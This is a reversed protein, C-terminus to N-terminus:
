LLGIRSLLSTFGSNSRLTDFLPEVKLAALWDFRDEYAKELWQIAPETEGVGAYVIAIWYPSVYRREAIDKLSALVKIAQTRDGSAGYAHGLSALSESDEGLLDLAKQFEEIANSYMQKQEFARGLWQHAVAFGPNLMISRGLQEIAEDYRRAFYHVTGINTNIIHSLPDLEYASRIQALAEDFRGTQGLTFGYWHHATEYKPNLEMARKFESESGVWDWDYYALTLGLSAHAEALTDDLELARTAAAKAKPMVERAPMIGYREILNFSDALGAFALAYNPDLDIAENFHEIARKFGEETRKGLFYRGKLYNQYAESKDTHRKALKKREERTLKIRLKHSIENSIAEQIEFIDTFERNYHEGWLQSNNAVDILEASIVLRDGFEQVRGTLVARAGIEKAIEQLDASAGKYRFVTSRPIVRLKPLESLSNIINETIGDSLYDMGPDLSLNVLPLVALSDIAKRSRRSPAKGQQGHALSGRKGRRKLRPTQVSPDDTQADISVGGEIAAELRLKRRLNRLDGLLGKVTQYREEPDKRLTKTIIWQLETPLGISYRALPQPERTLIRSITESASRSMFPHRGSVMEYLTVGLSFLDSRADPDDGRLQEPSMYPLTGPVQGAETIVTEAETDAAANAASSLTKALGFDLVKVQDRSNVIINQPKVDRHIISRSHAEALADAVQTAIELAEEIELSKRSMRAALTEGEVYQMVIFPRGEEEGVEYIACINPHDLKAAAKAERLLRRESILNRGRRDSLMKIAVNRGLLEDEALYVEGM